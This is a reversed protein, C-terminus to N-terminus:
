AEGKLVDAQAKIDEKESDPYEDPVGDINQRYINLKHIDPYHDWNLQARDSSLNDPTQAGTNYVITSNGKGSILDGAFISTEYGHGRNRWGYDVNAYLKILYADALNIDSWVVADSYRDLPIQDLIEDSCGPAILLLIALITIGSLIHKKM